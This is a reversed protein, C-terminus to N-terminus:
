HILLTTPALPELNKLTGGVMVSLINYMVNGRELALRLLREYAWRPFVTKCSVLAEFLPKADKPDRIGLPSRSFEKWNQQPIGFATIAQNLSQVLGHLNKLRMVEPDNPGRRSIWDQVFRQNAVQRLFTELGAYLACHSDQVCSVSPGIEAIGSGGGVRYLATMRELERELGLMPDITRGDIDYPNLEPLMFVTDWVPISYMWGRRLNGMYAHWKMCGSVVEERNHGYVQHYEIDFRSEGTFPCPVVRATGFSFHGPYLDIRNMINPKEGSSKRWGFLHMVLGRSGIPFTQAAADKLASLGNGPDPTARPDLLSARYMDPQMSSFLVQDIFTKAGKIGTAARTPAVRLIVRPELAKVMFSGRVKKGYMYWGQRNFESREIGTTNSVPVIDDKHAKFEQLVHVIEAPGDFAGTSRNFHIIRRQNGDAPGDFRALCYHSGNVQVPESDIWISGDRYEPNKLVVEISGVERNAPLSELPSVRKWGDIATPLKNHSTIGKEVRKPDMAIDVRAQEFWSNEAPAQRWRLPVIRGELGPIPCTFLMIPVAGDPKRWEILPLFIQGTWEGIPRYHAAFEQPSLSSPAKEPESSAISPFGLVGAFLAIALLFLVSPHSRNM